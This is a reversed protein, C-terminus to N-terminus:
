PEVVYAETTNRSNGARDVGMDRLEITGPKDFVVQCSGTKANITCIHWWTTNAGATTTTNRLFIEHRDFGSVDNPDFGDVKITVPQDRAVTPGEPELITTEPATRDVKVHITRIPGKNGAGDVIRYEITHNGDSNIDMSCQTQDPGGDLNMKCHDVGSVETPDPLSANRDTANLWVTVESTYWGNDGQTGNITVNATPPTTDVKYTGPGELAEQNGAVDKGRHHLEFIGDRLTLNVFKSQNSVAAQPHDHCPGEDLECDISSLGSAEAGPDSGEVTVNPPQVFWDNDGKPPAQSENETDPPISDVRIEETIAPGTNNARDRGWAKVNFVGDGPVLISTENSSRTRVEGGDRTFQIGDAGSRVGGEEPDAAKVTLNAEQSRCWGSNGPKPCNLQKDTITPGAEDVKVQVEKSWPGDNGAVDSANVRLAYTGNTLDVTTTGCDSGAGQEPTPPTATFNTPGFGWALLGSAGQDDACFEWTPDITQNCFGAPGQNCAPAALTPQTPAQTDIRVKKAKKDRSPKCGFNGKKDEACGRVELIGEKTLDATVSSGTQCTHNTGGVRICTEAVGSIDSADASCTAPTTNHWGNQGSPTECSLTIEPPTKDVIEVSITNHSEVNELEDIGWFEVTHDGPESITTMAGTQEAGGDVRFHINDGNECDVEDDSCSFTVKVDGDCAGSGTKEGQCDKTASTSPPSADAHFSESNSSSVDQYNTADAIVNYERTTDGGVLTTVPDQSSGPQKTIDTGDDATVHVQKVCVEQDQYPVEVPTPSEHWVTGDSGTASKGKVIIPVDPPSPDNFTIEVGDIFLGDSRGSPSDFKTHFDAVGKGGTESATNVDLGIAPEWTDGIDANPTMPPINISDQDFTAPAEAQWDRAESLVDNGDLSFHIDATAQDNSNDKRLAGTLRPNLVSVEADLSSTQGDCRRTIKIEDWIGSEASAFTLDGDDTDDALAYDRVRGDGPSARWWASWRDGFGSFDGTSDEWGVELTTPTGLPVNERAEAAQSPAVAAFLLTVIVTTTIVLSRRM